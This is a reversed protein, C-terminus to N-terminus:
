GRSRDRAWALSVTAMGLLGNAVTLLPITYIVM